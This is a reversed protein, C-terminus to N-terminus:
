VISAYEKRADDNYWQKMIPIIVRIYKRGFQMIFESGAFFFEFEVHIENDIKLGNSAIMRRAEGNSNAWGVDRLLQITNIEVAKM